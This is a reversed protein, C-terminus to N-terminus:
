CCGFCTGMPFRDKNISFAEVRGGCNLPKKKKTCNYKQQTGLLRIRFNVLAHWSNEIKSQIEVPMLHMIPM